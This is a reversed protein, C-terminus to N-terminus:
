EENTEEPTEEEEEKQIARTHQARAKTNTTEIYNCIEDHANAYIDPKVRAMVELYPMLTDNILDKVTDKLISPAIVVKKATIIENNKKVLSDLQLVSTRLGEITMSVGPLDPLLPKITDSEFDKLLALTSVVEKDYGMKYLYPDRAEVKRWIIEAKDSINKDPCILYAELFRKLSKFYADYVRDAEALDETFEGKKYLGLSLNLADHEKSLQSKVGTLYTDEPANIEEIKDLTNQTTSSVSLADCYSLLKTTM